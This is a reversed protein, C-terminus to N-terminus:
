ISKCPELGLSGDIIHLLEGGISKMLIRIAVPDVNGLDPDLLNRKNFKDVILDIEASLLKGSTNPLVGSYYHFGQIQYIYKNKVCSGNVRVGSIDRRFILYGHVRPRGEADLDGSSRLMGPWTNPDHGLVWDPFVVAKPACLQIAAAIKTRLTDDDPTPM